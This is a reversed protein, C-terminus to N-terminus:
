LTNYKFPTKNKIKNTLVKKFWAYKFNNDEACKIISNWIEGTETNIIERGAKKLGTRKISYREISEQSWKNGKNAIGIKLKTEESHKFNKKYKIIELMHNSNLNKEKHFKSMKERTEKTHKKGLNFDRLKQKTIDSVVGAKDDTETLYCNLGNIGASDYFDQWYRERVNLEENVVNEIIEMKHFESGYKILSNYLRTQGKCCNRNYRQFRRKIDISQGIYIKNSPSTIKYIVGNM